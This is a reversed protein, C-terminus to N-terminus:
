GRHVALGDLCREAERSVHKRLETPLRPLSGVRANEVIREPKSTAPLVVSVRPDAIIWALLAQVWTEVGYERLPSLDPERKLWQVLRGVGLPEMVIVGIGLDAALPLIAAECARGAVSYPIQITDIAGTKMIEMMESFYSPSYHTIGIQGIRGDQKLQQLTPLHSRWDVLNHIQLLDIYDTRLYEFSREIQDIGDDHGRRWVKTALHLRERKGPTAKGLVEEARGYMPSTDIFDVGCDICRDIIQRRVAIDKESTVEFTASTGMGIVGVDWASLKRTQM